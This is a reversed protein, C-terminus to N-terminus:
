LIVCRCSPSSAGGERERSHGFAGKTSRQTMEDDGVEPPRVTMHVVNPADEKLRCEKLPTRDELMRGFYILRIFHASAPRQDWEDKWDKWICEKLQWVSMDFPDTLAAKTGLNKVSHRDLYAKDMVINHRMSSILLLTVSLSSPSETIPSPAASTKVEAAQSAAEAPAPAPTPAPPETAVLASSNSASLRQEAAPLPDTRLVPPAATVNPAANRPPDTAIIHSASTSPPRLNESSATAMEPASQPLPTNTSM